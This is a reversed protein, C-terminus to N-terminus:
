VLGSKVPNGHMGQFYRIPITM